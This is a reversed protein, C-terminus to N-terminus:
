HSQPQLTPQSQPWWCGKLTNHSSTRVNSTQAPRQSSSSQNILAQPQDQFHLVWGQSQACKWSASAMSLDCCAHAGKYTDANHHKTQSGVESCADSVTVTVMMATVVPLVEWTIIVEAHTLDIEHCWTRAICATSDQAAPQFPAGVPTPSTLGPHSSPTTM